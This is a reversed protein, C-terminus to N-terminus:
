DDDEEDEDDDEDDHDINSYLSQMESHAKTLKNQMWEPFEGGEEIHESIEDAAHMIFDLQKEAMSAEDPSAADNEERIVSLSKM